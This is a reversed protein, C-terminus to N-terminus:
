NPDNYLEAYAAMLADQIQLLGPPLLNLKEFESLFRRVTDFKQRDAVLTRLLLELMPINEIPPRIARDGESGLLVKGEDLAWASATVRAASGKLLFLLYQLVKEPSNLVQEVIAINRNLPIGSLQCKLVFESTILDDGDNVKLRFAFLGTLEHVSLPGFCLEGSDDLVKQCNPITVPWCSVSHLNNEDRWQDLQIASYQLRLEHSTDSSIVIAAFQIKAFTFRFRDDEPPPVPVFDDTPEYEQLLTAFSILGDDRLIADIGSTSKKGKLQVMFEVNSSLAASTANASGLWVNADWGADAIYVKAHLGSLSGRLAEDQESSAAPNLFYTKSFQAIDNVSLQALSDARSVLINDKGPLQRLAQARVFPSIILMRDVRAGAFLPASKRNIGLPHFSYESFDSPLVFNVRRLEDAFLAIKEIM